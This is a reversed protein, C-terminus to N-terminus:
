INFAGAKWMREINHALRLSKETRSCTIKDTNIDYHINFFDDKTDYIWIDTFKYYSFLEMTLWAMQTTKVNNGSLIAKKTEHYGHIVGPDNNEYSYFRIEKM